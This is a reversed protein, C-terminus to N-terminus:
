ISYSFTEQQVIDALTMGEFLQQIRLDLKQYFYSHLCRRIATQTGFSPDDFSLGGELIDLVDYVLIESPNDKLLYGGGAGKVSVLVGNRTLMLAVQQLYKESVGQREAVQSLAIPHDQHNEALDVLLRLGYRGRTSIKM